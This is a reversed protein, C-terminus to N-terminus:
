PGTKNYAGILQEGCAKVAAEMMSRFGAGGSVVLEDWSQKTAEDGAPPYQCYGRWMVKADGGRVVRAQARYDVRYSNADTALAGLSWGITKVELFAGGKPTGATADQEVSVATIDRPVSAIARRVKFHGMLERGVLAAPDEKMVKKLEEPTASGPIAPGVPGQSAVQAKLELDASPLHFARLNRQRSLEARDPQSLFVPSPSSACGVLFLSLALIVYQM